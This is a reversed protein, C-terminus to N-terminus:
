VTAVTLSRYHPLAVTRLARPIGDGGSRVWQQEATKVDALEQGHLGYAAEAESRTDGTFLKACWACRIVYKRGILYYGEGDTDAWRDFHGLADFEAIAGPMEDVTVDNERLVAVVHVAHLREAVALESALHTWNCGACSVAAGPADQLYHMRHRALVAAFIDLYRVAPVAPPTIMPSMNHSM